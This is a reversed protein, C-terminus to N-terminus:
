ETGARAVLKKGGAFRLSAALEFAVETPVGAEPGARNWHISGNGNRDEETRRRRISFPESRYFALFHSLVPRGQAIIDSVSHFSAIFASLNKVYNRSRHRKGPARSHAFRWDCCCSISSFGLFLRWGPCAAEPGADKGGTEPVAVTGTAATPTGGVANESEM